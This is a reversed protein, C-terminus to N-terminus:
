SKLQEVDLGIIDPDFDLTEFMRAEHSNLKIGVFNLARWLHIKSEILLKRKANADMEGIRGLARFPKLAASLDNLKQSLEESATEDRAVLDIPWDATIGANQHLWAELKDAAEAIALLDATPYTM